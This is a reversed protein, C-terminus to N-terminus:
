VAVVKGDASLPRWLCYVALTGDTVNATGVTIIIDDGGAIVRDGIPTDLSAPSSDSWVRGALIGTATTSSIFGAATNASGLTVTATAGALTESCTAFARAMVDGTVTFVAVTGIAGNGAAGDFAITKSVRFAENSAIVQRNADRDMQAAFKM